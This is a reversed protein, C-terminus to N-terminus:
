VPRLETQLVKIVPFSSCSPSLRFYSETWQSFQLLVAFDGRKVPMNLLLFLLSCPIVKVVAVINFFFCFSLLM